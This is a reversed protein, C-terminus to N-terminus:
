QSPGSRRVRVPNVAITPGCGAWVGRRQVLHLLGGMLLWHVLKTNNSTASYNDKSDLPKFPSLQSSCRNVSLAASSKISMRFLPPGFNEPDCDRLVRRHRYLCFMTLLGEYMLIFKSRTREDDVHLVISVVHRESTFVVSRRVSSRCIEWSTVVGDNTVDDPPPKETVTAYLDGPACRPTAHSGAHASDVPSSASDHGQAPLSANSAVDTPSPSLDSVTAGATQTSSFNHPTFDFLTINIRQGPQM